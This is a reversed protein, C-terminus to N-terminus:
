MNIALRILVLNRKGFIATTKRYTRTNRVNTGFAGDVFVVVKKKMFVFDPKGLIHQNRRWGSVRYKRMINILVIETEKNNAGRILSMVESRKKISFVDSM